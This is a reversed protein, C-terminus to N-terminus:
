PILICCLVRFLQLEILSKPAHVICICCTRSASSPSHDHCPHINIWHHYPFLTHYPYRLLQGAGYATTALRSCRCCGLLYHAHHVLAYVCAVTDGRVGPKLENRMNSANKLNGHHLCGFQAEMSHLRWVVMVVWWHFLWPATARRCLGQM